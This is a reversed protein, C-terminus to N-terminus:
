SLSLRFVLIGEPPQVVLQLNHIQASYVEITQCLFPACLKDLCGPNSLSVSFEDFSLPLSSGSDGTSSSKEPTHLRGSRGQQM